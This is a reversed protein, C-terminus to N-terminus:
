FDAFSASRCDWCAVASASASSSNNPLFSIIKLGNLPSTFGNDSMLSAANEDPARPEPTAMSGESPFNTAGTDPVTVVRKGVFCAIPM